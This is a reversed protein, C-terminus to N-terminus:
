PQSTQGRLCSQLIREQELRLNGEACRVFAAAEHPALNTPQAPRRGNGTGWYDEHANLTEEDMLVSEVHPFVGRLAALIEFGDVDIDGGTFCVTRNFGNLSACALSPKVKARFESGANSRRCLSCTSDTKPLLSPPIASRFSRWCVYRCRCNLM